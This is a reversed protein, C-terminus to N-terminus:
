EKIKELKLEAELKDIKKNLTNVITENKVALEKSTNVSERLEVIQLAMDSVQNQVKVVEVSVDRPRIDSRDQSYMVVVVAGCFAMIVMASIIINFKWNNM